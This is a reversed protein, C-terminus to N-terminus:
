PVHTEPSVEPALRPVRAVLGSAWGGAIAAAGALLVKPQHKRAGRVMLTDGAARIVQASPPLRTLVYRGRATHRLHSVDGRLVLASSALPVVYHVLLGSVLHGRWLLWLSALGAGADAALKASHVQHLVLFDPDQLAKMGGIM